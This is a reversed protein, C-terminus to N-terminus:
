FTDFQALSFYHCASLWCVPHKKPNALSPHSVFPSTHPTALPLRCTQFLSRENQSLMNTCRKEAADHTSVSDAILSNWLESNVCHSHRYLKRILGKVTCYTLIPWMYFEYELCITPLMNGSYTIGLLETKTNVGSAWKGVTWDLM